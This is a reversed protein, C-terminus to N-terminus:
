NIPADSVRVVRYEGDVALLKRYKWNSLLKEHPEIHVVTTFNHRKFFRNSEDGEFYWLMFGRRKAYYLYQTDWNFVDAVIVYENEATNDRITKALHLGPISDDYSATFTWRLYDRTSYLTIAILLIAVYCWTKLEFNNDLLKTLVLYCCFGIVISISPSVAMLYYDHHWYLNFFTFITVFAALAFIIVFEGGKHSTRLYLWPGLILFVLGPFTAMYPIRNAITTWSDITARQMWTGYIWESLKASTLFSTFQSSAKVADAYQVWLTLSVIPFLFVASLAALFMINRQVYKRLQYKENKLAILLANLTLYGMPLLVTPLTTVKTLFGLIGFSVTLLFSSIKQSDSLWRTFFYFYGLSFAVSAYDIMFTRSWLITFPSWVYVLLVCTSAIADLYKQCILFLFYASLYFYLIAAIRGALDINEIGLKVVFAVTLQYIPFEMPLTWPPGFVPTKYELVSIGETIFTWVTIATTTERFQNGTFLPSDLNIVRILVSLLLLFFIFLKEPSQIVVRSTSTWCRIMSKSQSAGM